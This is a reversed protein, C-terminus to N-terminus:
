INSHLAKPYYRLSILYPSAKKKYPHADMLAIFETKEPPYKRSSWSM